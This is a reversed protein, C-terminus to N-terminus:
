SRQQAQTSINIYEGEGDADHVHNDGTCCCFLCSEICHFIPSCCCCGQSADSNYTEDDDYQGNMQRRKRELDHKVNAKCLPCTPQRETLWPNICDPHFYHSCPLKVLKEGNEFEELCISCSSYRDFQLEPKTEQAEPDASASPVKKRLAITLIIMTMMSPVPMVLVVMTKTMRARKMM